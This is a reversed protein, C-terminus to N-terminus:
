AEEPVWAACWGNANVLDGAFIDCPGWEEGEEGHFLACNSCLQGPEYEPWEAPDVRSADHVYGLQQAIEDDESVMEQGFARRSVLGACLPAMAVGATALQLFRRRAHRSVEDGM